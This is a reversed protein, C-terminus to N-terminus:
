IIAKITSHLLDWGNDIWKIMREEKTKPLVDYPKEPYKIKKSTKSGLAYSLSSNLADYFYKGQLWLFTNQEQLKIRQAQEFVKVMFPTGYWYQEYTMGISM